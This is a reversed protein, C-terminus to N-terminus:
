NFSNNQKKGEIIERVNDVSEQIARNESESELFKREGVQVLLEGHYEKKKRLIEVEQASPQSLLIPILM